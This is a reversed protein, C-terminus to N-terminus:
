ADADALDDDDDEGLDLDKERLTSYDVWHKSESWTDFYFFLKVHPLARTFQCFCSLCSICPTHSAYCIAAGRVEADPHLRGGKRKIADGLALLAMREAHLSRDHEVFVAQMFDSAGPKEPPYAIVRGRCVDAPPGDDRGIWVSHATWALLSSSVPDVTAEIGVEEQARRGALRAAALAPAGPQLMGLAAGAFETFRHSLSYQKELVRDHLRWGMKPSRAEPTTSDCYIRLRQMVPEYIARGFARMVEEDLRDHALLLEVAVVGFLVDNSAERAKRTEKAMLARLPVRSSSCGRSCVTCRGRSFGGGGFGGRLAAAPAAPIRRQWGRYPLVAAVSAAASTALLVVAADTGSAAAIAAVAALLSAAAAV